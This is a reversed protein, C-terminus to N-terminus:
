KRVKRSMEKVEADFWRKGKAPQQRLKSWRTVLGRVKEYPTEGPILSTCTNKDSDRMLEVKRTELEAKEWDM